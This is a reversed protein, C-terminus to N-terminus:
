GIVERAEDVWDLHRKLDENNNEMKRIAIKTAQMGIETLIIVEM